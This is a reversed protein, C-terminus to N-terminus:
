LQEHHPRDYGRSPRYNRNAFYRFAKHFLRTAPEGAETGTPWKSCDYSARKCQCCGTCPSRCAALKTCCHRPGKATEANGIKELRAIGSKQSGLSTHNGTVLLCFARAM